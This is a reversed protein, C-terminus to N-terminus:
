FLYFNFSLLLLVHAVDAAELGVVEHANPRRCRSPPTTLYGSVFSKVLESRYL